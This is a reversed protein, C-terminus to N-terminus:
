TLFKMLTEIFSVVIDSQRVFKLDSHPAARVVTHLRIQIVQADDPM